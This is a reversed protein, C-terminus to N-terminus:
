LWNDIKGQTGRLLARVPLTLNQKEGEGRGGLIQRTWYWMWLFLLNSFLIIIPFLLFFTFKVFKWHLLLMLLLLYGRHLPLSYYLYVNGYKWNTSSHEPSTHSCNTIQQWFGNMVKECFISSLHCAPPRCCVYHKRLPTFFIGSDFIRLSIPIFLITHPWYLSASHDSSSYAHLGSVQIFFRKALTILIACLYKLLM